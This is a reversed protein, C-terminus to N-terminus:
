AVLRAAVQVPDIQGPGHGRRPGRPVRGGAGRPIERRRGRAQVVQRATGAVTEDGREYRVQQEAGIGAGGVRLVAAVGRLRRHCGRAGLFRRVRHGVQLADPPAGERRHRAGQHHPVAGHHAGRQVGRGRGHRRRVARGGSPELWRGGPRAAGVPGARRGGRRARPARGAHAAEPVPRACGALQSQPVEGRRDRHHALVRRGGLERGPLCAAGASAAVQLRCRAALPIAAVAPAIALHPVRGNFRAPVGHLRPVRLTLEEAAQVPRPGAPHRPAAAQVRAPRPGLDLGRLPQAAAGAPDPRVQAPRRCWAALAEAADAPRAGPGPARPDAGAGAAGRGLPVARGGQPSRPP